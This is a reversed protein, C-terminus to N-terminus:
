TKIPVQTETINQDNKDKEQNESEIKKKNDKNYKAYLFIGLLLQIAGGIVGDLSLVLASTEL